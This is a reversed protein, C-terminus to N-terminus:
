DTIRALLFLAWTATLLLVCLTAWTTVRWFRRMEMTFRAFAADSPSAVFRSAADSQRWMLHAPFSVAAVLVLYASGAIGGMTATLGTAQLVVMGGYAGLWLTFVVVSVALVRMSGRMSRMHGIVAISTSAEAHATEHAVSSM